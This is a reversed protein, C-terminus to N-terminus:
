RDARLLAGAAALWAARPHRPQAALAAAILALLVAPKACRELLRSGAAVATWDLVALVTAVAVWVWGAATM